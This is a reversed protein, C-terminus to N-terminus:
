GNPKKVTKGRHYQKSITKDNKFNDINKYVKYLIDQNYNTYKQCTKIVYNKLENLDKFKDDRNTEIIYYVNHQKNLYNLSNLQYLEINELINNVVLIYFKDESKYRFSIFFMDPNIYVKKSKDLFETLLKKTKFKESDEYFPENPEIEYNSDIGSNDEYIIQYQHPNVMKIDNRNPEIRLKFLDKDTIYSTERNSANITGKFGEAKLADIEDNLERIRDEIQLKVDNGFDRILKDIIDLKKTNQMQKKQKVNEM